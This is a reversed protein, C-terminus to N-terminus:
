FIFTQSDLLSEDFFHQVKSVLFIHYKLVKGYDKIFM